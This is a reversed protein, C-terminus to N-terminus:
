QLGEALLLPIKDIYDVLTDWLFQKPKQGHTKHWGEWKETTGKWWWPTKRGDGHLAFIGTGQHVYVSYFEFYGIWAIIGADNEKIEFDSNARLTGIDIPTKDKSESLIKEATKNANSKIIKVQNIVAKNISDIWEDSNFKLEINM